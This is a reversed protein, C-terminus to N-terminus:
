AETDRRQRGIGSGGQRHLGDVALRAPEVRELDRALELRRKGERGLGLHLGLLLPLGTREVGSRRGRTTTSVRGDITKGRVASRCFRATTMSGSSFFASDSRCCTCAMERSLSDFRLSALCACLASRAFFSALHTTEAKKQAGARRSVRKRQTHACPPPWAHLARSPPCSPTKRWSPGRRSACPRHHSTRWSAAARTAPNERRWTNKTTTSRPSPEAAKAPALDPLTM